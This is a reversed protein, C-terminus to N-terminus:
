LARVGAPCRPLSPLTSPSRRSAMLGGGGGGMVKDRKAASALIRHRAADEKAVRLKEELKEVSQTGSPFVTSSAGGFESDGDYVSGGGSGGGYGHRLSRVEDQLEAVKREAAALERRVAKLAAEHSDATSSAEHSTTRSSLLESRLSTVEAQWSSSLAPPLPSKGVKWM